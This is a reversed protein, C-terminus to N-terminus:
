PPLIFSSPHLIFSSPHLIFSSPHLIFSSPHLIFSSPHLIFSSPHLIFSSPHLIFSSPHLIFSSPHLIFSSPHLIFSSPHLIFSSPHLIFSSPHLIFSSPHLIFSSPHLIFSSPHLILSSPHPIFSSPHLIFSSPHLIFSSPHLIFSSPHLIFPLHPSPSIPLLGGEGGAGRGPCWTSMTAPSPLLIFSSTGAGIRANGGSLPPIEPEKATRKGSCEVVICITASWRSAIWARAARTTAVTDHATRRRIIRLPIGQASAIRFTQWIIEKACPGAHLPDFRSKRGFGAGGIQCLRNM